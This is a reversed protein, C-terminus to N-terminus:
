RLQQQFTLSYFQIEDSMFIGGTPCDRAEWEAGVYSM